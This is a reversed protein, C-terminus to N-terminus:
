RSPTRRMVTARRSDALGRRMWTFQFSHLDGHAVVDLLGAVLLRRTGGIRRHPIAKAAALGRITRTSCGLKEAVQETVLYALM